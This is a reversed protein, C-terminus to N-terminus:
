RYARHCTTRAHGGAGRIPVVGVAVRKDGRYSRLAVALKRAIEAGRVGRWRSGVVKGGDGDGVDLEREFVRRQEQCVIRNHGLPIRFTQILGGLAYNQEYAPAIHGIM